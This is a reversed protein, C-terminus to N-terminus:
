HVKSAVTVIESALFPTMLGLSRRCRERARESLVHNLTDVRFGADRFWSRVVGPSTSHLGSREYNGLDRYLRYNSLKKKLLSLALMNPVSTIVVAQNTLISALADLLEPPNAFRHLVNSILVCEFKRGGLKRLATDIEGLVIEFGHHGACASIVEDLPLAVVNLGREFLIQETAGWGCGISLVSRADEPVFTLLDLRAPEYYHTGFDSAPFELEPSLLKTEVKNRAIELMAKIQADVYTAPTSLQDIYKNPLHHVLFDDFHSIPILKKFGCQTYPDTAATVLLDYKSQHPAVLFGGSAIARLLQGRNLVYCAAHENTFCACVYSGRSRISGPLWHHTGHIEPYYKNGNKDVEFRIFGAVEDDQLVNSIACLGDLNKQTLLVDDETYIFLDYENVRDAFIQKHGFPLSWPDSTPLGVVVDIERGLDKSINSLVVIDTKYQLSQYGKIIQTLYSDNARGYSAICVLLRQTERCIMSM